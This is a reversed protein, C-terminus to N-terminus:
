IENAEIDDLHKEDDFVTPPTIKPAKEFKEVKDGINQIRAAPIKFVGGNFTKAYLGGQPDEDVIKILVNKGNRNLYNRVDGVQLDEAEEGGLNSIEKEHKDFENKDALQWDDGLRKLEKVADKATMEINQSAGTRPNVLYFMKKVDNALVPKVNKVEVEPQTSPEPTEGPTLDIEPTEIPVEETPVEEINDITEGPQTTTDIATDDTAQPNVAIDAGKDKVMVVPKGTEEDKDLVIEKSRQSVSRWDNKQLDYFTAVKPSSPHGGKPHAAQPVYKMMTTGKAPRIEGNLKIFKFNLIKQRLLSRLEPVTLPQGYLLKELMLDEYFRNVISLDEMSECIRIGFLIESLLNKILLETM